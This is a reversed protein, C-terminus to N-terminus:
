KWYKSFRDVWPHKFFLIIKISSLDEVLTQELSSFNCKMLPFFNGCWLLPAAGQLSSNLSHCSLNNYPTFLSQVMLIMPLNNMMDNWLTMVIFLWAWTKNKTLHLSIIIPYLYGSSRRVIRLIRQLWWPLYNLYM